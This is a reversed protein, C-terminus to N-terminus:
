RSHKRKAALLAVGGAVVVLMLVVYPATELLIGTPVTGSKDNTFTVKQNNAGM